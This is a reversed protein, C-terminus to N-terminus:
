HINEMQDSTYSRGPTSLRDPILAAEQGVSHGTLPASRPCQIGEADGDTNLELEYQRAAKVIFLRCALNLYHCYSVSPKM